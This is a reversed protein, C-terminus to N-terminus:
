NIKKTISIPSIIERNDSMILQGRLSQTNLNQLAQQISKKHNGNNYLIECIYKGISYGYINVWNLQYNHKKNHLKNAIIFEPNDTNLDTEAYIVGESAAGLGNWINSDNISVSSIIQINPDLESIQRCANILASGRGVVLIFDPNQSLLKNVKTRHDLTSADFLEGSLMKGGKEEFAQTFYKKSDLGFDDNIVLSTGTNFDTNEKLYDAILPMYASELVFDRFVWPLDDTIGEASTLTAILPVEFKNTIDKTAKVIPTYGSIIIDVENVEILKKTISVAQRANFQNDEYILQVRNKACTDNYFHIALDIGKKLENGWSAANGSLTLNVGVRCDNNQYTQQNSLSCSSILFPLFSLLLLQIRM